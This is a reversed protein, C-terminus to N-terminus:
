TVVSPGAEWLIHLVPPINKLAAVRDRWPHPSEPTLKATTM